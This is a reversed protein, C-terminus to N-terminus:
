KFFKIIPTKKVVTQKNFNERIEKIWNHPLVGNGRLIIKIEETLNEHSQSKQIVSTVGLLITNFQVPASLSDNLAVLRINSNENASLFNSLSLINQETNEFFVICNHLKIKSFVEAFDRFLQVKILNNINEIMKQLSLSYKIARNVIIVDM